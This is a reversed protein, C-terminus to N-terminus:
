NKGRSWRFTNHDNGMKPSPRTLEHRLLHVNFHLM